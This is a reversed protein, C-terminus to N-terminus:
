RPTPPPAESSRDTAKGVFEKPNEEFTRRCDESCFFYAQGQYTTQSVAQSSDFEMGCVPDKEKAM